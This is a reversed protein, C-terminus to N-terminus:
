PLVCNLIGWTLCLCKETQYIKALGRMFDGMSLHEMIEANGFQGRAEAVAIKM